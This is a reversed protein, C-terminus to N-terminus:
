QLEGQQDVNFLDFTTFIENKTLEGVKIGVNFLDFTTTNLM